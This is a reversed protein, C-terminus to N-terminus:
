DIEFDKYVTEIDEIIAWMIDWSEPIYSPKIGTKLYEIAPEYQEKHNDTNFMSMPPLEKMERKLAEILKQKKDKM